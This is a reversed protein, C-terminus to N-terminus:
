FMSSVKSIKFYLSTVKIIKTIKYFFAEKEIM